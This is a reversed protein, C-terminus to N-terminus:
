PRESAWRTESAPTFAQARGESREPCRAREAKLGGQFWKGRKSLKTKTLDISM